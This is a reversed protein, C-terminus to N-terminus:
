ALESTHRESASLRHGTLHQVPDEVEAITWEPHEMQLRTAIEEPPESQSSAHEPRMPQESGPITRLYAFGRLAGQRDDVDGTRVVHALSTALSSRSALM